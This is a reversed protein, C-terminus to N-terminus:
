EVDQYFISYIYYLMILYVKSILFNTGLTLFCCKTVYIKQDKLFDLM